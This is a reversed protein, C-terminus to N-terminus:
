VRARVVCATIFVARGGRARERISQREIVWYEM